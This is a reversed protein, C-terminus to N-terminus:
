GEGPPEAMPVFDLRMGNAEALATIHGLLNVFVEAGEDKSYGGHAIMGRDTADDDLMLIARDDECHEPHEEGAKLMAAAIRGLRDVPEGEVKGTMKSLRAMARM